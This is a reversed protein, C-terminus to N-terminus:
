MASKSASRAHRIGALVGQALHALADVADVALQVPEQVLAGGAGALHRFDLGGGAAGLGGDVVARFAFRLNEVPQPRLVFARERVRVDLPQEALDDGAAQRQLLGEGDGIEAGGAGVGFGGRDLLEAVERPHPRQRRHAVDEALHFGAGGVVADHRHLVAGLAHHLVGQVAEDGGSQADARFDFQRDVVREQGLASRVDIRQLLDAGVLLGQRLAPVPQVGVVGGQGAPRHRAIGFRRPQRRGLVADRGDGALAGGVVVAQVDQLRVDLVLRVVLGAEEDDAILRHRRAAAVAGRDHNRRAVFGPREVAHQLREVAM